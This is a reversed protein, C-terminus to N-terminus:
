DRSQTTGLRTLARDVVVAEASGRVDLKETLVEFGEKRITAEYFGSPLRLIFDTTILSQVINGTRADRIEVRAGPPQTKFILAQFNPAFVIPAIGQAEGWAVNVQMTREVYGPPPKLRVQHRGFGLKVSTPTCCAQKVDNVYIEAQDPTSTFEVSVPRMYRWGNYASLLVAITGISALPVSHKRIRKLLFYITTPPKATLPDGRLYNEIDTALEGASAYRREPDRALAKLLLAQLERDIMRSVSRPPRPDEEVIRKIVQYSTGSTDHPTSGTLLQYLIVGLSYVDSRTDLQGIRGAAQEPSMYAPTGAVDGDISIPHQSDDELLTKALGFDVVHPQGDSSVLINSPKLDRHIVGRQHAAQIARCIMGMLEIIQRKGLRQAAVYADLHMGEILEMAYFYWGQESGSDYVRALNPQELKAALEVEREFRAKKKTSGPGIALLKLAVERRTSLQVARWVTGMGGQGLKAIIRYGEVHPAGPPSAPEARAPDLTPAIPQVAKEAAAPNATIANRDISM